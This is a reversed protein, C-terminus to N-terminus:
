QVTDSCRLVLDTTLRVDKCYSTTTINSFCHGGPLKYFSHATIGTEHFMDLHLSITFRPSISPTRQRENCGNTLATLWLKKVVPSSYILDLAESLPISTFPLHLTWTTPSLGHIPVFFVCSNDSRMAKVDLTEINQFNGIWHCIGQNGLTAILEHILFIHTHHIPPGDLGLFAKSWLEFM